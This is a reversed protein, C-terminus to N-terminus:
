RRRLMKLAEALEAADLKGDGDKDFRKVIGQVDQDKLGPIAGVEEANLKGDGDKDYLRILQKAQQVVDV